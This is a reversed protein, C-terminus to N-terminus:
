SANTKAPSKSGAPLRMNALGVGICIGTAILSVIQVARVKEAGSTRLFVLFGFIAFLLPIVVLRRM